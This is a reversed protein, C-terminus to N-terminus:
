RTVRAASGNKDRVALKPKKSQLRHTLSAVNSILRENESKLFAARDALAEYEEIAARCVRVQIHTMNTLHDRLLVHCGGPELPKVFRDSM